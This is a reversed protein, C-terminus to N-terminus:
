TSVNRSWVYVLRRIWKNCWALLLLIMNAISLNYTVYDFHEKKHKYLLKRFIIRICRNYIWRCILKNEGMEFSLLLIRQPIIITNKLGIDIWRTIWIKGNITMFIFLTDQIWSLITIKLMCIIWKNFNEDKFHSQCKSSFFLNCANINHLCLLPIDSVHIHNISRSLSNSLYNASTNAMNITM